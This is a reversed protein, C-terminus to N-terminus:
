NSYGLGGPSREAGRRADRARVCSSARRRAARSLRDAVMLSPVRVRPAFNVPDVEAPPTAAALGGGVLVSAKFRPELATVITGTFAGMSVGYYGVRAQDIDSRTELFDIARLVDKVRAITVDRISNPGSQEAM